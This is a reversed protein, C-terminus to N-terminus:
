AMHTPERSTIPNQNNNPREKTPGERWSTSQPDSWGGCRATTCTCIPQASASEETQNLTYPKEKVIAQNNTGSPKEVPFISNYNWIPGPLLNLTIEM